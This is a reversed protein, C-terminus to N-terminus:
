YKKNVYDFYVVRPKNPSSFGLLNRIYGALIQPSLDQSGKTGPVSYPAAQPNQADVIRFCNLEYSFIVKVTNPLEDATVYSNPGLIHLANEVYQHSL